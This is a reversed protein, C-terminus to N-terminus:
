LQVDSIKKLDMRSGAINVYAISVVVAAGLAIQLHGPLGKLLYFTQGTMSILALCISPYLVGPKMHFLAKAYQEPFKKPLYFCGAVPIINVLLLFGFGIRSIDGLSIDTLLTVAGMLYLFTLAYHPTGFRESVDGLKKPLWGDQSSVILGKTVWQFVGNLVTGLSIIVGAMMFYYYAAPPLVTKGVLSLPKNAVQEVPLTGSAILAIIMYILTSGITGIVIALPIDRSPNKMEGGLEVVAVAGYSAFAVLGIAQLMGDVGNPLLAETSAFSAVDVSSIGWIAFVSLGSIKLIVLWKQTTAAQKIGVMNLLYFFTMMLFASLKLPVNPYMTQLYQAFSLPYLAVTVKSLIIGIQWLFAWKPGMLLKSYVYGAGTAPIASALQAMPMVGVVNLLGSILFALVIGKGTLGIGVGTLILVGAGIIGGFCFGLVDTLGLVKKLKATQNTM